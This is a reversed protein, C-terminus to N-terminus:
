EGEGALLTDLYRVYKEAGPRLRSRLRVSISETYIEPSNTLTVLRRPKRANNVVVGIWFSAPVGALALKLYEKYPELLVKSAYTKSEYRLITITKTSRDKAWTLTRVVYNPV